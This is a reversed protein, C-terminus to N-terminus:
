LLNLSLTLAYGEYAPQDATFTEQYRAPCDESMGMRDIQARWNQVERRYAATSESGQIFGPRANSQILLVLDAENMEVRVSLQIDSRGTQLVEEIVGELVLAMLMSPISREALPTASSFDMKICLKDFYRMEQLSLYAELMDVEERILTQEQGYHRIYHRVLQSFQKLSRLAAMKDGVTIFYQVINLSNFVFHPNFQTRFAQTLLDM